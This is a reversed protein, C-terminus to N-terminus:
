TALKGTLVEFLNWGRKGGDIARVDGRSKVARQRYRRPFVQDIEVQLNWSRIAQVAKKLQTTDGQGVIRTKSDRGRAEPTELPLSTCVYWWSVLVEGSSVSHM